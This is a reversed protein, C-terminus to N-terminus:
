IPQLTLIEPDKTRNLLPNIKLYDKTGKLFQFIICFWFIRKQNNM